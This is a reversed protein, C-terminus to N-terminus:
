QMPLGSHFIQIQMICVSTKPLKEFRDKLDLEKCNLQTNSCVTQKVSLHDNLYKRLFHFRKFCCAYNVKGVVM